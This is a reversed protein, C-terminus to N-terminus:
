PNKPCNLVADWDTEYNTLLVHTIGDDEPRVEPIQCKERINEIIPFVDPHGPLLKGVLESEKM